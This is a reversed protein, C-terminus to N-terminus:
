NRKPAFFYRLKAAGALAKSEGKNILDRETVTLGDDREMEAGGIFKSTGSGGFQYSRQRSVGPAATRVSALLSPPKGKPGRKPPTPLEMSVKGKKAPAAKKPAVAKKSAAAKKPAPAAAKKGFLGAKKPAAAKKSAAKEKPAPAAAKSRSPPRAVMMPVFASSFGMLTAFVLVACVSKM